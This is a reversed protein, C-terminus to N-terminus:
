VVEVDGRLRPSAYQLAYGTTEVAALVIDRNDCLAHNTALASPRCRVEEELTRETLLEDSSEKLVAMSLEEPLVKQFSGYGLISSIAEWPKSVQM